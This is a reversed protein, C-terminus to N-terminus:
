PGFPTTERNPLHLLIPLPELPHPRDLREEIAPEAVFLVAHPRGFPVLPRRTPSSQGPNGLRDPDAVEPDAAHTERHRPGHEHVPVPAEPEAAVVGGVALGVFPIAQLDRARLVPVEHPDGAARLPGPRVMAAVRVWEHGQRYEVEPGAWVVM